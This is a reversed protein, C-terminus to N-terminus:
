EHSVLLAIYHCLFTEPFKLLLIIVQDVDLTLFDDVGDFDITKGTTALATWAWEKVAHRETKVRSVNAAM